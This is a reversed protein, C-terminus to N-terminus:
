TPVAETPQTAAQVRRLLHGNQKSFDTEGTNWPCDHVALLWLRAHDAGDFPGFYEYNAPHGGVPCVAIWEMITM